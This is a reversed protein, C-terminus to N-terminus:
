LIQAPFHAALLLADLEIRVLITNLSTQSGDLSILPSPYMHAEKQEESSSTLLYGPRTM